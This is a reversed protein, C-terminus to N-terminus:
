LRHGCNVYMCVWHGRYCKTCCGCSQFLWIYRRCDLVQLDAYFKSKGSFYLIASKKFFPPRSAGSVFKQGCSRLGRLVACNRSGSKRSVLIVEIPSRKRRSRFLRCPTTCVCSLSSFSSVRVRLAEEAARAQKECSRVAVVLSEYWSLLYLLLSSSSKCACVCECLLTCLSPPQFRRGRKESYLFSLLPRGFM